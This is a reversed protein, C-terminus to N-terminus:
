RGYRVVFHEVLIDETLQMTGARFNFMIECMKFLLSFYFFLIHGHININHNAAM